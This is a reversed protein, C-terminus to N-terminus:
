WACGTICNRQFRAAEAAERARRADEQAQREQEIRRRNWHDIQDDGTSAPTSPEGGGLFMSMLGFLVPAPIENGQASPETNERPPTTGSPSPDQRPVPRSNTSGSPAFRDLDRKMGDAERVVQRTQQLTRSMDSLFDGAHVSTTGVSTLVLATLLHKMTLHKSM